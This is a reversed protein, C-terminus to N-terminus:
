CISKCCKGQQYSGEMIQLVATHPFISNIRQLELPGM